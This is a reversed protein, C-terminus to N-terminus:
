EVADREGKLEEWTRVVDWDKERPEGCSGFRFARVRRAPAGCRRYRSLVYAGAYVDEWASRLM